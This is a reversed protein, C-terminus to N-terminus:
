TVGIKGNPQSSYIKRYRLNLSSKLENKRKMLLNYFGYWFLSITDSLMAKTKQVYFYTENTLQDALFVIPVLGHAMYKQIEQLALDSSHAKKNM